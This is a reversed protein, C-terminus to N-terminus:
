AFFLEVLLGKLEVIWIRIKAPAMEQYNKYRDVQRHNAIISIKMNELLKYNAIVDKGFWDCCNNLRLLWDSHNL